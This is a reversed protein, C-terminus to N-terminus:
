WTDIFRPRDARAQTTSALGRALWDRTEAPDIVADIELTAAMNLAGGAEYQQAVLQRYLAERAPGPAAAELEQRFGLRVAGELGMAGFEGTPWAVIFDPEHFGGATMGMAGLGYGKRLVVAFVPVRLAAAQVFLRCAHRVQAQKEIEPGVMFGPTDVLSVIPLGHANCLQMFRAAKDAGDADIAGGLHAPNNALVGVPRGEIRALATVMGTGFGGRLELLSGTDFLGQLVRRVDYVRLRNEPVADRLLRQDACTWRPSAGQFFSLYHKAAAVAQAEDDVLVDVVGNAWQVAAPGIDEPRYVGLGGGEIMAPGGMGINAGRAAVIVDSCGLLAANGAFCRGAAIGIVPVHGSLRAYSGFTGVYLGAVVPVDTDGPRGGGGEAFLVVPLRNDAAISLMRDTKHHNRFGQTGALVTADYAMVVARAREPGFLAGNIGGIGTVMGDAPTNRVLDEASRRSRQAAVALAGYEIFSGPDCLDAVNERATRLGLARRRAVADPRAADLTPAHRDIVRQLDARIAGPERADQAAAAVADADVSALLVLARGEAVYDGPQARLDMVRGPARALLVHEMKMAELVVLHAGAPVVDGVAVALEALRAAMPARVATWHAPMDDVDNADDAPGAEALAAPAHAQTAALLEALHAEVFGTSVAQREFEPREALARLLPLTTAIGEITCEALARRSRRVADAFDPGRAHVIVKALLTDYQPTAATGAEAHTDVRVGPGAPLTLRRLVGSAARAQGHADLTEANIRWQIAHGQPRPPRAPDLGLDALTRGGAIGIQLQVLDLGTVAETVTHEVQLRPNAEIFAFPLADSAPDVLFEFTGLSRYRAARAMALAAQVLRERLPEPLSPSPAIEVLKQFRRQLSCEREGLSMAAAGDGVVQVEVHRAHRMLREVYVGDVGFARAESVCRAYAAPLDKADLVARLGRGGGGGIAKIMVGAGRQEEFFARAEELSVAQASGPLLPVGCKAALARARAKDGFLLLQEVGPGVFALGAAECASAFDARESLFGYGPHVADCGTARAIAVLGAIDLWAAPGPADLVVAESAARTHPAHPEDAATVAVCPLGMDAAARAIRLAVEGRNAILLKAPM